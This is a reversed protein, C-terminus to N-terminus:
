KARREEIKDTSEIYMGNTPRSVEKPEIREQIKALAESQSVAGVVITVKVVYHNFSAM